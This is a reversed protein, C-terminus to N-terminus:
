HAMWLAMPSCRLATRTAGGLVYERLRSHGFAGMVLLDSGAEAALSLLAEGDDDGSDFLTVEVEIGHRALYLAMDAGPEEGHVRHEGLRRIVLLRAQGAQRLLPIASSIARMAEASGNWALSPRRGIPGIEGAAPVVLVPRACNLLVTAQFDDGTSQGGAGRAQQGIVVLDAYRAQLCVATAAEEDIRRRELLDCGAQRARREFLDLARDAEARLETIPLTIPPASPDMASLPF